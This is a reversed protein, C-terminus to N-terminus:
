RSRGGGGTARGGGELVMFIWVFLLGASLYRWSYSWGLHGDFGILEDGQIRYRFSNHGCIPLVWQNQSWNYGRIAQQYRDPNPRRSLVNNESKRRM